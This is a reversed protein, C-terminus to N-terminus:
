GTRYEHGAVGSTNGNESTEAHKTVERCRPNHPVWWQPTLPRSSYSLLLTSAWSEFANLCRFYSGMSPPEAPHRQCHLSSGAARPPLQFSLGFRPASLKPNALSWRSGSDVTVSVCLSVLRTAAGAAVSGM